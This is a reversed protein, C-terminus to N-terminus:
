RASVAEPHQWPRAVEEARALEEPTLPPSAAAAAFERLQDSDYINPLASAVMPQSWVYRLAAQAITRGPAELFKLREVIPLGREVWGPPRHRRHDNPAWNRAEDERYRGELLGSAHPVRVHVGCGTRRAAAILDKGPEPELLNFITQLAPARRELIAMLGEDRWGIRPGLAIGWWRILGEARLDELAAFTDDALVHELKPNHLQYLDIRDTALRKLSAEVGRRLAAPSMDQPRERQDPRAPTTMDYGGKTAIVVRDRVGTLTEALLTEGRGDGYTEATDFFNIGLDLAEGILRGGASPDTVGWWNTSVTWAGFGLVSVELDTAGLRRYEV